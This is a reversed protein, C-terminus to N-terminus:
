GVSRKTGGIARPLSARVVREAQISAHGILSLPVVAVIATGWPGTKIRIDGGLQNLRVRMGPVGVGFRVQGNHASVAMMGLGDDRIRVVLRAATIRAEVSIHKAHAHRHVNSLAEQVVRLVAWQIELTIRDIEEPISVRAILGTRDCFGTIFERLTSQLGDRMLDPPHLLYTFIRLEQLAKDHLEQIEDAAKLGALTPTVERMLGVLGLNAAVLHQATSDHLERAIHRREEDQLTLLQGSLEDVQRTSSSLQDSMARLPQEVHRATFYAAIGAACLLIILSAIQWYTDKMPADVVSLPVEVLATWSTAESHRYAVLVAAGLDDTDEFYGEVTGHSSPNPLRGALGPPPSISAGPESGRMTALPALKRDYIGKVWGTPVPQEKLLTRLRAEGLATTLWNTMHGDPGNLRLSLVVVNDGRVPGFIRGSVTWGRDRIRDIQEQYNAITAHRPLPSGFPRLSNVLQKELDQYILWSDEPLATAKFQDYLARLDGSLLAPSKALGKLLYNIAAVEQDFAFSISVARGVAQQRISATEDRARSVLLTGAVVCIITGLMLFSLVVKARVRPVIGAPSVALRRLAGDSM